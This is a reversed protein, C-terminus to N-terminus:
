DDRLGAALWVLPDESLASLQQPAGNPAPAPALHKLVYLVPFRDDRMLTSKASLSVMEWGDDGLLRLVVVAGDETSQWVVHAYQWRM